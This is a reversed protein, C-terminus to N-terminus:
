RRGGGVDVGDAKERRDHDGDQAHQDELFVDGEM